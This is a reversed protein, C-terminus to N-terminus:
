QSAGDWRSTNGTMEFGDWFLTVVSSFGYLHGETSCPPGPLM